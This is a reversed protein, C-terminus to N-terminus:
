ICVKNNILASKNTTFEDSKNENSSSKLKKAPKFDSNNNNNNSISSISHKFSASALASSQLSNSQKTLSNSTENIKNSKLEHPKFISRENTAALPASANNITASSLTLKSNPSIIRNSNNNNNNSQLSNSISHSSILQQPLQKNSSNNSNNNNNNNTDSQYSTSKINNSQSKIKEETKKYAARFKEKFVTKVCKTIKYKLEPFKLKCLQIIRRIQEDNELESQSYDHDYDM